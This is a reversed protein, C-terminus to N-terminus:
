GQQGGREGDWTHAGELEARSSITSRRIVTPRVSWSPRTNVGLTTPARRCGATCSAACNRPLARSAPGMAPLPAPAGARAPAVHLSPPGPAESGARGRVQRGGRTVGGPWGRAAGAALHAHAHANVVAHLAHSEVGQHVVSQAAVGALHAPPLIPSLLPAAPFITFCSAAPKAQTDHPPARRRRDDARPTELRCTARRSTHRTSSRKSCPESARRSGPRM